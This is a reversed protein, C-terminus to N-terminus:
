RMEAIEIAIVATLAMGLGRPLEVAGTNGWRLAVVPWRTLEVEEALLVTGTPKLVVMLLTVM